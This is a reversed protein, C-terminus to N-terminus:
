VYMEPLGPLMFRADLDDEPPFEVLGHVHHYYLSFVACSQVWLVASPIGADAAVDVAWSRM